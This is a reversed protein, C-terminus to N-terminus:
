ETWLPLGTAEDHGRHLEGGELVEVAFECAFVRTGSALHGGFARGQAGGLTVHAHVMPQGDRLSVNGALALIELDHDFELYRYVFGAQDYYGIRAKEVAGLAEVRGLRVGERAVLATLAELLDDGRQLRGMLVEKGRVRRLM